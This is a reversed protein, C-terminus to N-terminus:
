KKAVVLFNQTLIKTSVSGTEIVFVLVLITRIIKWLLLRFASIPGHAIPADEYCNVEKFGSVNLLQRISIDTFAIQHTIDGYVVNGSFPSAGNPVHIIYKGGPRLVRFVEDNLKLVDDKTLHELLDICIVIDESNPPTIKLADSFDGQSICEIGLKRAQAVQAPSRDIGRISKYGREHM